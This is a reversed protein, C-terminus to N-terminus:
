CTLRTQANAKRFRLSTPRRSLGEVAEAMRSPDAHAYRDLMRISSWGALKTAMIPDVGNEMYGVRSPIDCRTPPLGTIGAAKCAERFGRVSKYPIGRTTTFVWEADPPHPLRTLADLVLSNLPVTRVRGNKAYASVITLTRHSLDVNEWKLTLLESRMRLGTYIAILVM